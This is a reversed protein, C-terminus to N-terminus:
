FRGVIGLGVGRMGVTIPAPVWFINKPETPTPTPAPAPAPTPAPQGPSKPRVPLPGVPREIRERPLQKAAPEQTPLLLGEVAIALGGAQVVGDIATVIGRLIVWADSCDPEPAACGNHAIALWPGVVPVRLDSAGPVDPFAFSMGAAAGYSLATVGLGALTVSWRAAPPPYTVEIESETELGEQALAFPSLLLGAATVLATRFWSSHRMVPAHM